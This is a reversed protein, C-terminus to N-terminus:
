RCSPSSAVAAVITRIDDTAQGQAAIAAIDSDRLSGLPCVENIVRKTFWTYIGTSQGIATGLANLGSGTLPGKWGWRTLTGSNQWVAGVDWAQTPSAGVSDPNCTTFTTFNCTLVKSRNNQNSGLSKMSGTTPAAIYTFGNNPDFDFIDAVTSYGHILSPAGGGHCSICAAQGGQGRFFNPDGLPVFRPANQEMVDTGTSAMQTLSDGFAIEYISEIYRLNTGATAGYMALSTDNARDSLTVYGGVHQPPIAIAVKNQDIANQGAQRSIASRFDVTALEATTLDAAHVTTPAGARTVTVLYTANESWISSLSASTGSGIFHALLFLTADNDTVISPDMAPAQMERALRRGLYTAFYSSQAAVLAAGNYDGGSIDTVMQSFESSSTPLLGGTVTGAIRLASAVVAPDAASATSSLLLSLISSAVFCNKALREFSKPFVM